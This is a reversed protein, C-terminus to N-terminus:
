TLKIKWGNETLLFREGIQIKIRKPATQQIPASTGRRKITELARPSIVIKRAM